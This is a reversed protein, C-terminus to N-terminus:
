GWVGVPHAFGSSVRSRHNIGERSPLLVGLGWCLWLSRGLGLQCCSRRQGWRGSGPSTEQVGTLKPIAQAEWDAM